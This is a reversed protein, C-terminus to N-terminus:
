LVLKLRGYQATLLAPLLGEKISSYASYPMWTDRFFLFRLVRSPIFNKPELSIVQLLSEQTNLFHELLRDEYRCDGCGEFLFFVKFQLHSIVFSKGAEKEM